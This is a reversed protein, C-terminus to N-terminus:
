RAAAIRLYRTISAARVNSHAPADLRVRFLGPSRPRLTFRASGNAGVHLSARRAPVWAAGVRRDLRLLLASGPMRVGRVVGRVAAGLQARCASVAFRGGGGRPCALSATLRPQVPPGTITFTFTAVQSSNGANDTAVARLTHKGVSLPASPTVLEDPRRTIPAGDIGAAYSAIGSGTPTDTSSLQFTPTRLWPTASQAWSVTPATPPTRDIWEFHVLVDGGPAASVQASFLSPVFLTATPAAETLTVRALQVVDDRIIGERPSPRREVVLSAIGWDGGSTADQDVGVHARAEIVLPEFASAISLARPVSADTQALPALAYDGSITVPAPELWGLSALHLASFDGDGGDLPDLAAYPGAFGDCSTTPDIRPDCGRTTGLGLMRGYERAYVAPQGVGAPYVWAADGAGDGAQTHRDPCVLPGVLIFRQYSATDYGALTAAAVVTSEADPEISTPCARPNHVVLMPTFDVQIQYRGSSAGALYATLKAVDAHVQDLSFGPDGDYSGSIVLVRQTTPPAPPNALAGGPAALLGLSACTIAVLHARMQRSM